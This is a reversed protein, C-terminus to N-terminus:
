RRNAYYIFLSVASLLALAALGEPSTLVTGAWSYVQEGAKAWPVIPSQTKPLLQLVLSLASVFVSFLWALPGWFLVLFIAALIPLVVSPRM